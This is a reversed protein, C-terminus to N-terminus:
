LDAGKLDVLDLIRPNILRRRPIGYLAEIEIARKLPVYGLQLWRSVRQQSVGLATGLASQSGAADIALRVGTSTPTM